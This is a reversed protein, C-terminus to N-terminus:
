ARACIARRVKRVSLSPKGTPSCYDVHGIAGHSPENAPRRPASWGEKSQETPPSLVEVIINPEEGANAGL